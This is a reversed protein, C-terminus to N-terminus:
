LFYLIISTIIFINALLIYTKKTNFQLHSLKENTVANFNYKFYIFKIILNSIRTILALVFASMAFYILLGNLHQIDTIM